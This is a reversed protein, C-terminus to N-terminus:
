PDNELLPVLPRPLLPGRFPRASGLRVQSYQSNNNVYRLVLLACSPSAMRLNRLRLAGIVSLSKDAPRIYPRATRLKMACQRDAGASPESIRPQTERADFGIS